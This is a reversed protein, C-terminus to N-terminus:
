RVVTLSPFSRFSLSFALSCTYFGKWSHCLDGFPAKLKTNLRSEKEKLRLCEGAGTAHGMGPGHHQVTGVALCIYVAQCPVGPGGHRSLICRLFLLSHHHMEGQVVLGCSGLFLADTAEPYDLVSVSNVGVRAHNERAGVDQKVQDVPTHVASHTRKLKFQLLSLYVAFGRVLSTTEMYCTWTSRHTQCSSLWLSRPTFIELESGCVLAPSSCKYLHEEKVYYVVLEYRGLDFQLVPSTACM